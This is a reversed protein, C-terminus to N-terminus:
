PFDRWSGPVFAARAGTPLSSAEGPLAPLAVRIHVTQVSRAVTSAAAGPNSAAATGPALCGAAPASCGAAQLELVGAQPTARVSVVFAPQERPAADRLAAAAAAAQQAAAATDAAPLAPCHCRWAEDVLGCWAALAAAGPQLPPQGGALPACSGDTPGAAVWALGWELGAQGAEFARVARGQAALARWEAHLSLRLSAAGLAAAALLALVTALAAMGRPRGERM